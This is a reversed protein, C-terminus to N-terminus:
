ILEGTVAKFYGLAIYYEYLSDILKIRAEATARERRNVVFLTSDGLKFKKNEGSEMKEALKVEEEIASLNKVSMNIASISDEVQLFIQQILSKKEFNIRDIELNYKILRGKAERRQIPLEFKFGGNVVTGNISDNGMQKGTRLALDLRPLLDNEAFDSELSTMAISIELDKIEPRNKMALIKANNINKKEPNIFVSNFDNSNCNLVSLTSKTKEDWLYWSLEFSVKQFYRESKIVRSTRTQIEQKIEILDIAPIDGNKVRSNIAELRFNSLELLKKEINLKNKAAIWKWYSDITKLLLELAVLRYNNNIKQINYESLSEKLSYSNLGAGRLLPANISVFYEGDSGTPSIPTKIDGDNLNYGSKILLGYRTLLELETSYMNAYQPQGIASSSNYRNYFASAKLNLDFAGQSSLLESESIKNSIVAMKIIPHNEKVMSLVNNLNLSSNCNSANATITTILLLIFVIFKYQEYTKM